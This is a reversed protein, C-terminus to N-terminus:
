PVLPCKKVDAKYRAKAADVAAKHAKYAAARLKKRLAKAAEIAAKEKEKDAKTKNSQEYAKKAAEVADKYQKEIAALRKKLQDDAAKIAAKERAKAAKVCSKKRAYQDIAPSAGNGPKTPHAAPASIHAVRAVDTLANRVSSSAAALGGAAALSVLLLATTGAALGFRFGVPMGLSRRSVDPSAATIEHEIDSQLEGPPEPRSARLERGLDGLDSRHWPVRM